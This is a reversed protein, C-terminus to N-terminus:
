TEQQHIVALQYIREFGDTIIKELLEAVEKYEFLEGGIPDPIDMTEGVMESLMYVRDGSEGYQEQLWKKHEEEMTLILDFNKMLQLNVSQALKNSIDLGMMEMVYKSLFAPPNGDHAWIGASEIQWQDVDQRESVVKKLIAEAMPSRCMNATCVILVAVM